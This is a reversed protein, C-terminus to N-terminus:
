GQVSCGRGRRAYGNIPLFELRALRSGGGGAVSSDSGELAQSLLSELLRCRQASALAGEVEDCLSM